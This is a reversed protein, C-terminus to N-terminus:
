EAGGPTDVTGAARVAGGDRARPRPAAAQERVLALLEEMREREATPLGEAARADAALGRELYETAAVYDGVWAAALGAGLLAPVQEPGAELAHRFVERAEDWRDLQLLAAGLLSWAFGGLDAQAGLRLFPESEAARGQRLLVWGLAYAALPQDPRAALARTAWESADEPSGRLTAIWALLAQVGPDDPSAVDLRLAQEWADDDRGTLGLALVLNYRADLQGPDTRLSEEFAGVAEEPDGQRLRLYGLNNWAEAFDPNLRLAKRTLAEAEALAGRRLAVVALNNYPESFRDNYELALRFAADAGALDNARLRLIGADNSAVAREHLSTTALCGLAPMGLAVVAAAAAAVRRRRNGTTRRASTGARGGGRGAGYMGQEVSNRRM